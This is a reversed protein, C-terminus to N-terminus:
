KILEKLIQQTQVMQEITVNRRLHETAPLVFSDFFRHCKKCLTIRNSLENDGGLQLPEIHHDELNHKRNDHCVKCMFKDRELVKSRTLQAALRMSTKYEGMRNIPLDMM